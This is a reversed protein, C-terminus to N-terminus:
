LPTSQTPLGQDILVTHKVLNALLDMTVAIRCVGKNPIALTAEIMCRAATRCSRRLPYNVFKTASVTVVNSDHVLKSRRLEAGKAVLTEGTRVRGKEDLRAFVNIAQYAM